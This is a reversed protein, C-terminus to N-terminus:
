IKKFWVFEMSESNGESKGFNCIIKVETATLLGKVSNVTM